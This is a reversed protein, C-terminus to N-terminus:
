YCSIEISKSFPHFSTCFALNINSIDFSAYIEHKDMRPFVGIGKMGEGMAQLVEVAITSKGTGTGGKVVMIQGHTKLFYEKIEPPINEVM